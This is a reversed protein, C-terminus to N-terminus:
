KEIIACNQPDYRYNIIQGTILLDIAKEIITQPAIFWERPCHRMGNEDFIDLNLCSNAFFRQLLQEFKQPNMNYCKWIGIVQVPAMLYTPEKSANKVRENVDSKSYGIKFLNALSSIKKDSSKSKLVYIYGAAEDEAAITFNEIFAENAKENNETVTRGNVYLIKVLSRYLMNSETGNEFICRTRGDVRARSGSSFAQEAQQKDASEFLMLVGSHVYFRGEILSNERFDTLMRRGEALDKQVEKFLSEYKEFDRCPKRRAVFDAQAREYDKPVHKYEFLGESDDDLISLSDSAFIDEFSSPRKPTEYPKATEKVHQAAFDPLLGHRDFPKLIQAKEQDERFTTLRTFLQFENVNGLNPKPEKGHQEFFANIEQFSAVLREDPSQSCSKTPKLDLLGLPDNQFIGDLIKDKDM